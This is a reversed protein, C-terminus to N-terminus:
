RDQKITRKVRYYRGDKTRAIKKENLLFQLREQEKRTLGAEEPSRASEPSIARLRNLKELVKEERIKDLARQAAIYSLIESM